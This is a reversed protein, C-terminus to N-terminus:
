AMIDREMFADDDSLDNDVLGQQKNMDGTVEASKRVSEFIGRYRTTVKKVSEM